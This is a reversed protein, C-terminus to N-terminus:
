QKPKNLENVFASIGRAVLERKEASWHGLTHFVQISDLYPTPTEPNNVVMHIQSTPDSDHPHTVVSWREIQKKTTEFIDKM